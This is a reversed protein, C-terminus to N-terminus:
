ENPADVDVPADAGWVEWGPRAPKRANLEIKPLSPFYVELLHYVEEPKESHQGIDADFASEWQTGPAPAPVDGKVGILLLEHANRFWYGTGARDKLWVCHSRYDFGWAKMVELAQPLMPVTAWLALVCDDAAISQVDRKKIDELRSTAYHNAASRDSGTEESWPVFRWEPDALIVGFRKNPLDRIKTALEAEHQARRAQKEAAREQPSAESAFVAQRQADALRAAYEEQSLQSLRQWYHSQKDTVGIEKNSPFSGSESTKRTKGRREGLEALMEGARREARWRIEVADNILKQNMAQKAYAQLAVAKDRIDKVEDIAHAEALATRARDYLPVVQRTTSAPIRM